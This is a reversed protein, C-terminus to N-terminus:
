KKKKTVTKEEIQSAKRSKQTKEKNEKIIRNFASIYSQINKIGGKSYLIDRFTINDKDLETDFTSYFKSVVYEEQIKKPFRQIVDKVKSINYEAGYKEGLIPDIIDLLLKQSKFIPIDDKCEDIIDSYEKTFYEIFCKNDIKINSLSNERMNENNLIYCTSLINLSNLNKINNKNKSDQLFIDIESSKSKLSISPNLLLYMNIAWQGSSPTVVINKNDLDFILVGSFIIMLGKCLIAHKIGAEWELQCTNNEKYYDIIKTDPLSGIRLYLKKTDSSYGIIYNYYIIGTQLNDKNFLETTRNRDCKDKNFKAEAINFPLRGNLKNYIDSMKTCNITDIIEKLLTTKIDDDYELNDFVDKFNFDELEYEYISNSYECKQENDM